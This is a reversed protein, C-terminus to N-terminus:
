WNSLRVTYQTAFVSIFDRTKKTNKNKKKPKTKATKTTPKKKKKSKEKIKFCDFWHFEQIWKDSSNLFHPIFYLIHKKVSEKVSERSKSVNSKTSKFLASVNVIISIFYSLYINLVNRQNHITFYEQRFVSPVCIPKHWQTSVNNNNNNIKM